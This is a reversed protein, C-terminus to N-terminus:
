SLLQHELRFRSSRYSAVLKSFKFKVSRGLKYQRILNAAAQETLKKKTVKKIDINSSKLSLRALRGSSRRISAKLGGQSGNFVGGIPSFSRTILQDKNLRLLQLSLDSLRSL